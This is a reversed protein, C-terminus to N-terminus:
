TRTRPAGRGPPSVLPALVPTLDPDTMVDQSVIKGEDLRYLVFGRAKTTTGSPVTVRYNFRAVVVDGEAVLDVVEFVQGRIASDLASAFAKSSARDGQFNPALLEDFVTLDPPTAHMGALYRRVVAKNEDM